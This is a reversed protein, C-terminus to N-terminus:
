RRHRFRSRCYLVRIPAQISDRWGVSCGLCEHRVVELAHPIAEVLQLQWYDDSIHLWAEGVCAHSFSISQKPNCRRLRCGPLDDRRDAPPLLTHVNGPAPSEDCPQHLDEGIRPVRFESDGNGSLSRTGTTGALGIQKLAAGELGSMLIFVDLVAEGTACPGSGSCRSRWTGRFGGSIARQSSSVGRVSSCGSWSAPPQFRGLASNM